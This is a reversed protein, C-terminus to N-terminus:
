VGQGFVKPCAIGVTSNKIFGRQVSLKIGACLIDMSPGAYYFLMQELLVSYFQSLSLSHFLIVLFCFVNLFFKEDGFRMGWKYGFVMLVLAYLLWINFWFFM